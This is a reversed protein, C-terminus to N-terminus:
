QALLSLKQVESLPRAIKHLRPHDKYKLIVRAVIHEMVVGVLGLGMGLLLMLFVGLCHNVNLQPQFM